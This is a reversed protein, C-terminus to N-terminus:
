GDVASAKGIEVSTLAMTEYTELLRINQSLVKQKAQIAYLKYYSSSVSLILKRQTLLIDEYQADALAKQYGERASITGFWPLMQKLSVKFRQPGTRTEPESVFYALGVETNPITNAERVRESAIEYQTHYQQLQPNNEIAETLLSQLTQGYLMCSFLLTFSTVIRKM